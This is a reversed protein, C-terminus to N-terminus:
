SRKGFVRLRKVGGDPYIVLKVHTIPEAFSGPEVPLTHEADASMEDGVLLKWETASNAQSPVSAGYVEARQPFNGRFFATDITVSEPMTPAGLKIIAWDCHGEARSRATEWGDGMDKGRGPLLLNEKRGFHQDSCAEAVAGNKVSCLDLVVNKDEPFRPSVTGFLRFRAIGGDPHQHLRVHTYLKDVPTPFKFFHRQSPGCPTKPVIEEWKAVTVDEGEHVICAELSIAPAENGNFFATDVECGVATGTVGLKIIVWDTPQKNHRRTEWGDFWAGTPVYYGARRIPPEPNLLNVADAFYQDSFSVIEGDVAASCFDIQGVFPDHEVRTVSAM